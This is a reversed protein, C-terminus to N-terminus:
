RQTNKSREKCFKCNGKHALIPGGNGMGGWGFLYECSDIVVIKYVSSADNPTTTEDVWKYPKIPKLTENEGCSGLLMAVLLWIATRKTQKM